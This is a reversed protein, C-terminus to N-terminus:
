RGALARAENESLNSLHMFWKGGHGNKFSGFGRKGEKIANPSFKLKSLHAEIEEVSRVGGTVALFEQIQESVQVSVPKIKARLDDTKAKTIRASVDDITEETNWGHLEAVIYGQGGNLDERVRKTRFALCETKLGMNNKGPSVGIFRSGTTPDHEVQLVSRVSAFIAFSGAAKQHDTHAAGSAKGYHHIMEICLNHERAVSNIAGHIKYPATTDNTDHGLRGYLATLSDILVYVYGAKALTALFKSLDDLSGIGAKDAPQDWINKMKMNMGTYLCVPTITRKPSEEFSIIAIKHPGGRVPIGYIPESNTLRAARAIAVKTKGSGAAGVILSLEGRAMFGPILYQIPEVEIDDSGLFGLAALEREAQEVQRQEPTPLMQCLDRFTFDLSELKRELTWGDQLVDAADWKDGFGSVDVIGVGAVPWLGASAILEVVDSAYRQGNEDNDPWIMVPLGAPLTHWDTKDAALAGGQSTIAYYRGRVSNIADAAKEGEVVVIVADGHEIERHRGYLPWLSDGKEVYWNGDDAQHIPRFSKRAGTAKPELRQVYHRDSYQYLKGRELGVPKISDIAADLSPFPRSGTGKDPEADPKVIVLEPRKPPSQTDNLIWRAADDASCKRVIMVLDITSGGANCGFCHWLGENKGNFDASPKKDDHSPCCFKGHKDCQIGLRSLVEKPSVDKAREFLRDNAGM